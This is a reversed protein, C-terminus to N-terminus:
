RPDRHSWHLLGLHPVDVDLNLFALRLALSLAARRAMSGVEVTSGPQKPEEILRTFSLSIHYKWMSNSSRYAFLPLCLAGLM